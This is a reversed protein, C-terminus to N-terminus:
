SRKMVQPNDPKTEPCNDKRSQVQKPPTPSTQQMKRPTPHTLHASMPTNTLVPPTTWTNSKPTIQATPQTEAAHWPQLPRLPDQLFIILQDVFRDSRTETTCSPTIVETSSAIVPRASSPSEKELESEPLNHECGIIVFHTNTTLAASAQTQWPRFASHVNKSDRFSALSKTEREPAPTQQLFGFLGEVNKPSSPISKTEREPDATQQLFVTKCMHVSLM